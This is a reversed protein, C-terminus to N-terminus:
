GYVCTSTVWGIFFPLSLDELHISTQPSSERLIIGPRIQVSFKTSSQSPTGVIAANGPHDSPMTRNFLSEIDWPTVTKTEGPALPQSVKYGFNFYLSGASWGAEPINVVVLGGLRSHYPNEITEDGTNTVTVSGSAYANVQVHHKLYPLGHHTAPCTAFSVQEISPNNANLFILAYRDLKSSPSTEDVVEELNETSVFVVQARAPEPLSFALTYQFIISTLLLRTLKM